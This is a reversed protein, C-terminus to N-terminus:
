MSGPRWHSLFFFFLVIAAVFFGFLCLFDADHPQYQSRGDTHTTGLGKHLVTATNESNMAPHVCCFSKRLRQLHVFYELARKMFSSSQFLNTNKCM